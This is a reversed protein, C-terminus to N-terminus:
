RSLLGVPERRLDIADVDKAAYVFATVPKHWFSKVYSILSHGTVNKRYVDIARVFEDKTAYHKAAAEMMLFIRGPVRFNKISTGGYGHWCHDTQNHWYRLHEINNKDLKLANIRDTIDVQEYRQKRLRDDKFFEIYKDLEVEYDVVCENVAKISDLGAMKKLFLQGKNKVDNVMSRMHVDLKVKEKTLVPARCCPCQKKTELHRHMDAQEFYHGCPTVVPDVFFDLTLVCKFSNEKTGSIRDIHKTKQQRLEEAQKKERELMQKLLEENREEERARRWNEEITKQDILGLRPMRVLERQKRQTDLIADSSVGAQDLAKIYDPRKSLIKLAKKAKKPVNDKQFLRIFFM